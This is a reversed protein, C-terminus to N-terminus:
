QNISDYEHKKPSEIEIVMENPLCVITENSKNIKKYKVCYHDPCSAHTVSVYGDKIVVTNTGGNKGHIEINMNQSLPLRKAINGEVKIIVYAGKKSSFNTIIIFVGIIALLCGILILDKKKM